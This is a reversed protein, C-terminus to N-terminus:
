LVLLVPSHQLTPGLRLWPVECMLLVYPPKEESPLIPKGTSDYKTIKIM